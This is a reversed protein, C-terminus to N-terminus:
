HEGHKALFSHVATRTPLAAMAGKSTASLAATANAFRVFRRLSSEDLESLPVSTEVLGAILGALFADGCGTTDVAKVSFGPVHGEARGNNFYAGKSGLTILCLKPGRDLIWRSGAVVDRTGALLELETENLKCIAVGQMGKLIGQRAARLSSWVAPRLNADYAVLVGDENAWEVAELVTEQSAGTLTFSGYVFIDASAIYSRDLNEPRLLTDAGRYIIFDQDNPSSAAVLTLMTPAAATQRFHTTDVGETQLLEVLLLGFPDDGVLGVFGVDAGLRASAVAVNAPGGGPAPVFWEAEKLPVGISGAFMDILAEGFSVIKPM